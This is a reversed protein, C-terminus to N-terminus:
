SVESWFPHEHAKKIAAADEPSFQQISNSLYILFDLCAEKKAHKIKSFRWQFHKYIDADEDHNKPNLEWALISLIPYSPKDIALTMLAPLYFEIGKPDLYNFGLSNKLHEEPVDWWYGRYDAKRTLRKLVRADSIWEDRARAANIGCHEPFRLNTFASHINEKLKNSHM